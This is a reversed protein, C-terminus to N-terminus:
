KKEAVVTNTNNQHRSFHENVKNLLISKYTAEDLFDQLVAILAPETTTYSGRLAEYAFKFDADSIRGNPDKQEQM